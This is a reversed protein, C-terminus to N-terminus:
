SEDAEDKEWPKNKSEERVISLTEEKSKGEVNMLQFMRQSMWFIEKESILGGSLDHLLKVRNYTEGDPNKYAEFM